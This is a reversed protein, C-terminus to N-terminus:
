DGEATGPRATGMLHEIRKLAKNNAAETKIIKITNTM